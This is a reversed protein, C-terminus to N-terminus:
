NRDRRLNNVRPTGPSDSAGVLGLRGIGQRADEVHRGLAVRCPGWGETFRDDAQMKALFAEALELAQRWTAPTVCSLLNASNLSDPLNGGTGPRFAMPLMDYAPAIEYPRGHESVFSLNGNHMDTNGILVGFAYLTAAVEAAETTIVRSAALRATLVPWPSVADGVFESDLATLSHVARRGLPGLRDFREVELFRRPGIDVIRSEAAPLGADTLVRGALHEALLLDRWRGTVANDSQATFKVLVHRGNYAAFKPQEGGASSGAVEGREVAEALAPYDSESIPAPPPAQIFHARAIDGLLLNGVPDDGHHILARLVHADTWENLDAPLGLEAAFSIAYARGLFGAPRMDQVWWPLGDSHLTTGDDQLMVFGGPRVPVLVGLRHIQGEASVRYVPVEAFGRTADRLAYQISRAAGIRIIEPGLDAIARSLTPQSIGILDILQRPKAPGQALISRIHDAHAATMTFQHTFLYKFQNYIRGESYPLRWETFALFAPAPRALPCDPLDELREKPKDRV